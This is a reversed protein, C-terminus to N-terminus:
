LHGLAEARRRVLNAAHRYANALDTKTIRDSKLKEEITCFETEDGQNPAKPGALTNVKEEERKMEERCADLYGNLLVRVPIKYILGLKLATKLSPLQVGREYRSLQDIGKLGLLVAVQKQEIAKRQRAIALQNEYPLKNKRTMYNLKITLYFVCLFATDTPSANLCSM